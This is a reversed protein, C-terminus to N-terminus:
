HQGQEALRAEIKELRAKLEANEAELKEVRDNVGLIKYYLEQIAKVVPSVLQDYKVGQIQGTKNYTVYLPDIKEVEEAIFGADHEKSKKWDYTVPRLSLIMDVSSAISRVNEKYRISSSCASLVNSGDICVATATAANLTDVRLTGGVHLKAQPNTNGVGVNGSPQIVMKQGLTGSSDMTFFRMDTSVIGTSVAGNSYSVIKATEIYNTGDSASTSYRSLEDGNQVSVTSSGRSKYFRFISGNTDNGTYYTVVGRDSSAATAYVTLPASPSQTGIGVNGNSRKIMFPIAMYTGSDNWTSVVLDSGANSGSEATNNKEIKWRLGTTSDGFSFGATNGANSTIHVSTQSAGGAIHLKAQPNATGMGILGSSDSIYIASTQNTTGISLPISGASRIRGEKVAGTGDTVYGNTVGKIGASVFTGVVVDTSATAVSSRVDLPYVPVTTGIGVNGGFSSAGAAVQLAFPNTITTNTGAAPANDIYVTAANTLTVANNSAFTPQAFSNSVRNAITGSGTTDTVTAAHTASMIGTTTWSTSNMAGGGASINVLSTASSLAQGGGFLVKGGFRATSNVDLGFANTITVNAGASPASPILLTSARTYTTATTAAITPQQLVNIATNGVTGSSSTDTYTASEQRLGIGNTTWAASSKNGAITLAADPTSTGFGINGTTAKVYFANNPANSEITFSGKGNLEDWFTFKGSSSSALSWQSNGASDFLSLSANGSNVGTNGQILIGSNTKQSITLTHLPNNTGIGVNGTSAIRMRENGGTSAAMTDAGPSFWGTDPDGAFSYTPASVTGAASSIAAGGATPSVIGASTIDFRKAGGTAISITNDNNTNYFGTDADGSFTISPTTNSGTGSSTTTSTMAGEFATAKVTGNVELAATPAATGIGVSGGLFAAAYNNTAGTTANVTLGYANTTNNMVSAPVYIGHSNTLTANAGAIPPGDVSFAAVNTIIGASGFSWTTPSIRFDRQLAVTAGSTRSRTNALNYHVNLSESGGLTTDAPSTYLFRAAATSHFSPSFSMQHSVFSARTGSNLNFQILSTANNATLAINGNGKPSVIIGENAGSSTSQIMPSTGAAAGVIQIGTAQSATSSDVKLVPNTAGNPGIVLSNASTSAVEFTGTPSTTGIGFNGNALVRTAEGGNVVTRLSGSAGGVGQFYTTNDGFGLQYNTIIGQSGLIPGGDVHLTAGPNNTGIGVNGGSYYIKGSGGDQWLKASAPLRAGDITGSTIKDADLNNIFDCTLADTISSWTLTKNGGCSAASLQQAGTSTRLNSIGFNTPTWTSGSLTLVQGATPTTSSVAYGQIKAVTPTTYTGSLDGGPTATGQIAGTIRTDNGAAVTNAGTGVNLTLNPTTTANTVTLYANASSVTTIGGGGGGAPTGCAYAGASITLYQGGPCNSISLLSALSGYASASIAAPAAGNVRLYQAGDVGKVKGADQAYLAQPIWNLNVIPLTDWGGGDNYSLAMIRTDTAAPTYSTSMGDGCPTAAAALSITGSNSFIQDLSNGGDVNAAARTGGGVNLSFTGQSSQLDLNQTEQFLLCDEAGSSKIQVRFIVSSAM